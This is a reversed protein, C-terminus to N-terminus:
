LYNETRGPKEETSVKRSSQEIENPPKEM